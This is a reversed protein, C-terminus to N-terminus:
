KQIHFKGDYKLEFDEIQNRRFPISELGFSELNKNTIFLGELSSVVRDRGSSNKIYVILDYNSKPNPESERTSDYFKGVFYFYQRQKIEM